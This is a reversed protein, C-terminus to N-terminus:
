RKNDVLTPVTSTPKNSNGDPITADNDDIATIFFSPAVPEKVQTDDYINM